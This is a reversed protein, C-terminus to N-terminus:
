DRQEPKKLYESKEACYRVVREVLEGSPQRLNLIRTTAETIGIALVAYFASEDVEKLTLMGKVANRIREEVPKDGEAFAKYLDTALSTLGEVNPEM